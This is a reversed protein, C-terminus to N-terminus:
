VKSESALAQLASPSGDTQPQGTREVAAATGQSSPPLLASGPPTVVAGEGEGAGAATGQSSPQVPLPVPPTVVAGEGEGERAATAPSSSPVGGGGVGAEERAPAGSSPSPTTGQSSSPVPLPVPPVGGGAGAATVPSSSPLLAPVPPVGGEGARTATAPTPPGSGGGEVNIGAKVTAEDRTIAFCLHVVFQLEGMSIKSLLQTLTIGDVANKTFELRDPADVPDSARRVTKDPLQLLTTLVMKKLQTFDLEPKNYTLFVAAALYPFRETIEITPSNPGICRNLFKYWFGGTISEVDYGALQRFNVVTQSLYFGDRSKNSTMNRSNIEAIAEYRLARTQKISADVADQIITKDFKQLICVAALDAIFINTLQAPNVLLEVVPNTLIKSIKTGATPPGFCILSVLETLYTKIVTKGNATRSARVLASDDVGRTTGLEKYIADMAYNFLEDQREVVAIYHQVSQTDEIKFPVDDLLFKLHEHDKLYPTWKDKRLSMYRAGGRQVRRSSRIGTKRRLSTRVRDFM